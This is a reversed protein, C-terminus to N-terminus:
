VIYHLIQVGNDDRVARRKKLHFKGVKPQPWYITYIVM